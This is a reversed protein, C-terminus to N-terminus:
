YHDTGGLDSPLVRQREKWTADDRDVKLIRLEAQAMPDLHVPPDRNLDRLGHQITEHHSVIGVRVMDEDGAARKILGRVSMEPGITIDTEVKPLIGLKDRLIEATEQARQMPSAFLISPVEDNDLMWEALKEVLKRGEDTLGPDEDVSYDDDEPVSHRIAYVRM